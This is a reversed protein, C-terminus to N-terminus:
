VRPERGRLACRFGLSNDRNAPGFSNRSAARVWLPESHYWSGGRDDRYRTDSPKITPKMRTSVGTTSPRASLVSFRSREGAWLPHEWGFPRRYGGKFRLRVVRGGRLPRLWADENPEWDSEECIM